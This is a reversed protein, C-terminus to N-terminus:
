GPVLPCCELWEKDPSVAKNSWKWRAKGHLSFNGNLHTDAFGGPWVATRDALGQVCADTELNSLTKGLQAHYSLNLSKAEYYRDSWRIDRYDNEARLKASWRGKIPISSKSLNLYAPSFEGLISREAAISVSNYTLQEEALYDGSGHEGFALTSGIIPRIKTTASASFNFEGATIHVSNTILYSEFETSLMGETCAYGRGSVRGDIKARASPKISRMKIVIQGHAGPPLNHFTWTDIAGYDPPPYSEIFVTRPDYDEKVILDVPELGNNGYTITYTILGGATASTPGDKVDEKELPEFSIIENGITLYDILTSTDSGYITIVIRVIGRGELRSKCSDLSGPSFEDDKYKEYELDFGDLENWANNSMEAESWSRKKSLIRADLLGDSDYSDDGDGDLYLEIQVSGDGSQPNIWMSLQDLDELPLPPDLYIYIRAYKGESDISLEACSKGHFGQSASIFADTNKINSLRYDLNTLGNSCIISMQSFIIIIIIFTFARNYHLTKGM